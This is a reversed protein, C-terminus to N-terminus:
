LFRHHMLTLNWTVSVIVMRPINKRNAADLSRMPAGLPHRDLLSAGSSVGPAWHCCGVLLVTGPFLHRRKPQHWRINYWQTPFCYTEVFCFSFFRALNKWMRKVKFAPTGIETFHTFSINKKGHLINILSFLQNLTPKKNWTKPIKEVHSVFSILCFNLGHSTLNFM